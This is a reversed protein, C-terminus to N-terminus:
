DMDMGNMLHIMYKGGRKFNNQEYGNGYNNGRPDLLEESIKCGEFLAKQTIDVYKEGFAGKFDEVKIYINDPLTFCIIIGVNGRQIELIIIKDESINYLQSLKYLFKKRLKNKEIPDFIINDNTNSGGFNLKLNYIKLFILGSSILQLIANLIKKNKLNKVIITTIGEKNLIYSLVNLIYIGSNINDMNKEKIYNNNYIDMDIEEKLYKGLKYIDKQSDMNNIETYNSNNLIRDSIIEMDRNKKILNRKKIEININKENHIEQLISLDIKELSEFNTRNYSQNITIQEKLIRKLKILSDKIKDIKLNRNKTIM